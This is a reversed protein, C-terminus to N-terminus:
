AKLATKLADMLPGQFVHALGAERRPWGWLIQVIFVNVQCCGNQKLNLLHKDSM